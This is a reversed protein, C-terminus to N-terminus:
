PFGTHSASIFADVSYTDLTPYSGSTIDFEM